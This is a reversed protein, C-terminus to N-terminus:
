YGVRRQTDLDLVFVRRGIPIKIFLSLFVLLLLRRAAMVSSLIISCAINAELVTEYLNAKISM